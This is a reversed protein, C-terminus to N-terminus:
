NDDYTSTSTPISKFDIQEENLQTELTSTLLRLVSQADEVMSSNPNTADNTYMNLPIM